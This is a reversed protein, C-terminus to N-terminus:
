RRYPCGHCDEHLDPSRVLGRLVVVLALGLALGGVQDSPWHGGTRITDSLLVLYVVLTLVAAARGVWQRRTAVHLAIPVVAILVTVQLVHGGPYSNLEGAHLALPPREREVLHGIIRLASGAVAVAAPYAFALVRCRLLLLTLLVALVIVGRTQGVTNLWDPGWRDASGRADMGEYLRRDLRDLADVGVRHLVGLAAVVGLLVSLVTFWRAGLLDLLSRERAPHELAFRRVAPRVAPWQVASVGAVAALALCTAASLANLAWWTGSRASLTADDLDAGARVALLGAAVILLLAGAAFWRRSRLGVPSRGTAVAGHVVSHVSSAAVPAARRRLRARGRRSGVAETMAIAVSVIAGAGILGTVFVNLRSADRRVDPAPSPSRVPVVGAVETRPRARHVTVDGTTGDVTVTVEGADDRLRAVLGPVNVVAPVGLERAVIAAHSLPGGEEVVIAGAAFFLPAWSADTSHAVLVDGRRMRATIASDAVCVPGEYRGPAAGWGRVTDGVSTRPAPPPDGRFLRPLPGDLAEAQLRHRRQAIAALTPGHRSGGAERASRLLAANEDSTVLEIDHREELAGLEVLREAIELDIRRLLGGVMLVAAKTRERRELLAAADGAERRLFARQADTVHGLRHRTARWRPDRVIRRELEARGTAARDAGADPEADAREVRRQLMAWALHPVEAWTEGGPVATSGARVIARDFAGLLAEGGPAAALVARAEGWETATVLAGLEPAGQAIGVVPDLAVMVAARLARGRGTLQQAHLSADVAGLHKALLLEVGRYSATAMAAIAVEAAMTRVAVERVRVGLALLADDSLGPLDADALVDTLADVTLIVIESEQAARARSRLTRLGQRIDTRRAPRGPAGSPASRAEAAPADDTAGGAYEREIEEPSGGPISAAALRLADLNIAVRGRVRALLAHPECLGPATAGLEDFLSRFAEEVLASDLEWLRPPLVGPLMEAIGAGTLLPDGAFRVDFSDRADGGARTTIPRAQLLWLRGPEIAWELDQPAGLARELDLARAALEGLLPDMAELTTVAADRPLVLAEPTVAGSVLQEGLGLVTEIRMSAVAGEGGSPDVTFLVGAREPTLMRMVIVAMALSHEDVGHFRRYSRPSPHWLSAWTLRVAHELEARAVGLFSRYQGAFSASHLDEATASSRVAVGSDGGVALALVDIAAAVEPPMPAALFADDVARREDEHRGPPPARGTRWAEVAAAMADQDVFARYAATTLVGSRPVPAGLAVLRDLAAGKGGAEAGGIGRGDLVVALPSDHEAM